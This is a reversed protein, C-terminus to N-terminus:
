REDYPNDQIAELKEQGKEMVEQTIEGGLGMETSVEELFRKMMGM